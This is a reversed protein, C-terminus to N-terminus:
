FVAFCEGSVSAWRLDGGGAAISYRPPRWPLQSPAASHRKPRTVRTVTTAVSFIGIRCASSPRNGCGGRARGAAFAMKSGSTLARHVASGRGVGAGRSDTTARLQQRPPPALPAARAKTRQTRAARVGGVAGSSHWQGAGAASGRSCRAAPEPAAGHAAASRWHCHGQSKCAWQGGSARRWQQQQQQQQAERAEGM